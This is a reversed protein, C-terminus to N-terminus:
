PLVRRRANFVVEDPEANAAVDLGILDVWHKRVELNAYGDQRLALEVGTIGNERDAISLVLSQQRRNLDGELPPMQSQRTRGGMPWTVSGGPWRGRGRADMLGTEPGWVLFVSELEMIGPVRVRELPGGLATIEGLDIRAERLLFRLHGEFMATISGEAHSGSTSAEWELPVFGYLASAPELRWGVRVPKGMARLLVDGSWVTGTVAGVEVQEPLTLEPAIRAWVWGAPLYVVLSLIWVFVFVLVLFFGRVPGVRFRPDNGSPPSLSASATSSM